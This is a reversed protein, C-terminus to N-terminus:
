NVLSKMLCAWNTKSSATILSFLETAVLFLMVALISACVCMCVCWEWATFHQGMKNWLLNRHYCLAQKTKIWWVPRSIKNESRLSLQWSVVHHISTGQVPKNHRGRRAARQMKPPLAVSKANQTDKQSESLPTIKLPVVIPIAGSSPIHLRSFEPPMLTTHPFVNKERRVERWAYFSLGKGGSEPDKEWSFNM